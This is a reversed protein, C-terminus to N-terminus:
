EQWVALAEQLKKQAMELREQAINWREVQAREQEGIRQQMNLKGMVDSVEERERDEREMVKVASTYMLERVREKVRRRDVGWLFFTKSPARDVTRPVEYLVVWEEKMLEHLTERVSQRSATCLEALQSEELRAHLLLVRYIRSALLSFRCTLISQTQLLQLHSLFSPLDVSYSTAGLAQLPHAPDNALEQLLPRLSSLTLKPPNPAEQAYEGVADMVRQEEFLPPRFSEYPFIRLLATLVFASTLSIRERVYSLMAGRQAEATFTSDNLVWHDPVGNPDAQSRRRREAEAEEEEDRRRQQQRLLEAERQLQEDEDADRKKRGRQRTKKEEKSDDARTSAKAREKEKKEEERKRKRMEAGSLFEKEEDEGGGGEKEGSAKAMIARKVFRLASLRHLAAELEDRKGAPPAESSSSSSPALDAPQRQQQYLTLALDLLQPTTLIGKSCLSQVILAADEGLRERAKQVYSPLRPRCRLSAEHVRYLVRVNLPDVAADPPPPPPSSTSSLPSPRREYDAVAINHQICIILAKRAQSPTLTSYHILAPLTLPGHTLLTSVLQQVLPGFDNKVVFCLYHHYASM